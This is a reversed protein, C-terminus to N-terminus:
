ETKLTRLKYTKSEIHPAQGQRLEQKVQELRATAEAANASDPAMGLFRQYYYVASAKYGLGYDYLVALNYCAAASKNTLLTKRYVGIAAEYEGQALQQSGQRCLEDEGPDMLKNLLPSLKTQKSSQGAQQPSIRQKASSLWEKVQSAESAEPELSLFKEYYYVAKATFELEHDYIVALNYVADPSNYLKWASKYARVAAEYKEAKVLANGTEILKNLSPSAEGLGYGTTMLGLWVLLGWLRLRYRM